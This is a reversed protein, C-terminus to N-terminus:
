IHFGIYIARVQSAVIVATEGTGRQGVSSALASEERPTTAGRLRTETMGQGRIDVVRGGTMM